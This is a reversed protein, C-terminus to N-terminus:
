RCQKLFLHPYGAFSQLSKYRDCEAKTLPYMKNWAAFLNENKGSVIGRGPYRNNFNLYTRAVIGKAEVGPTFKRDSLKVKCGGFDRDSSSLEAMSYNSRLGNLEGIEPFLNYVDGEMERFQPNSQACKRGKSSCGSAGSRWESFSNGFAEAPVVHEWELREARKQNSQVKYGCSALDIKKGVVKCGCYITKNGYLHTNKNLFKKTQNFDAAATISFLSFLVITFTKM